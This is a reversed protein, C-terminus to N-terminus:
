RGSWARLRRGNVGQLRPVEGRFSLRVPAPEALPIAKGPEFRGAAATVLNVTLVFQRLVQVIFAGPLTAVLRTGLWVECYALDDLPQRWGRRFFTFDM